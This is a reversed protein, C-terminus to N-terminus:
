TSFYLLSYPLFFFALCGLAGLKNHPLLTDCLKVVKPKRAQKVCKSVSVLQEEM